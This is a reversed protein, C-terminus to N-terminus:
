LDYGQDFRKGDMKGQEELTWWETNKVLSTKGGGISKKNIENKVLM